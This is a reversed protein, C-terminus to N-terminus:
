QLMTGTVQTKNSKKMFKSGKEKSKNRIGSLAKTRFKKGGGGEPQFGTAAGSQQLRPLYFNDGNEVTQKVMFYTERYVTYIKLECGGNM